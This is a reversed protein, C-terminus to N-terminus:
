CEQIESKRHGSSNSYCSNGQSLGSNSMQYDSPSTAEELSDSMNEVM